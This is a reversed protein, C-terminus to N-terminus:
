SVWAMDLKPVHLCWQKHTHSRNYHQEKESDRVGVGWEKGCGCLKPTCGCGGSSAKPHGCRGGCAVTPTPIPASAAQVESPNPAPPSPPTPDPQDPQLWQQHAKNKQYHQLKQAPSAGGKGWKKGCGCCHHAVVGERQPVLMAAHVGVHQLMPCLLRPSPLLPSPPLPRPLMDLLLLLPLLQPSPRLPSPLLGWPLLLPLATM